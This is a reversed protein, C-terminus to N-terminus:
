HSLMSILDVGQAKLTDPSKAFIHSNGGELTIKTEFTAAIKAYTEKEVDTKPQAIPDDLSEILVTHVRDSLLESMNEYVASTPFMDGAHAANFMRSFTKFFPVLQSSQAIEFGGLPASVAVFKVYEFKELIGNKDAKLLATKAPLSGMSSTIIYLEKVDAGILSNIAEVVHDANVAIFENNHPKKDKTDSGIFGYVSTDEKNILEVYQDWFHWTDNVGGFFLIAKTTTTNSTKITEFYPLDAAHVCLSIVCLISVLISRLWM